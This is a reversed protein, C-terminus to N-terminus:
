MINLHDVSPNTQSIEGFTGSYIKEKEKKKILHLSDLKKKNVSKNIHRKIDKEENM